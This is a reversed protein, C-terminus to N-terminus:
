RGAALRRQTSWATFVSLLPCAVAGGVLMVMVLNRGKAIEEPRTEAAIVKYTALAFLGGIGLGLLLGVLAPALLSLRAGRRAAGRAYRGGSWLALLWALPTMCAAGPVGRAMALLVVTTWVLLPPLLAQVFSPGDLWSAAASPTPTQSM